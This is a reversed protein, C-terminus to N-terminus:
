KRYLALFDTKKFDQESNAFLLNLNIKSHAPLTFILSTYMDLTWMSKSWTVSKIEQESVNEFLLKTTLEDEFTVPIGVVSSDTFIKKVHCYFNFIYSLDINKDSVDQIHLAGVFYKNPILHRLLRLYGLESNQKIKVYPNQFEFDFLKIEEPADSDNEIRLMITNPRLLTGSHVKLMEKAFGTEFNSNNNEM